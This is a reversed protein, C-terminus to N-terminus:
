HKRQADAHVLPSIFIVQCHSRINICGDSQKWSNCRVSLSVFLCVVPVFATPFHPQLSSVFELPSLQNSRGHLSTVRRSQKQKLQKFWKGRVRGGRPVFIRESFCPSTEELVSRGLLPLQLLACLIICYSVTQVTHMTAAAIM